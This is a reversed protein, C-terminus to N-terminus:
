PSPECTTHGGLFDVHAHQLNVIEVKTSLQARNDLSSHKRLFTLNCQPKEIAVQSSIKNKKIIKKWCADGEKIISCDVKLSKFFVLSVVQSNKTLIFPMGENRTASFIKSGNGKSFIQFLREGGFSDAGTVFIYDGVVGWFYSAGFQKLRLSKGRYKTGCLAVNPRKQSPYRITIKNAGLEGIDYEVIAFDGYDWCTSTIKEGYSMTGMSKAKTLVKVHKAKPHDFGERGQQLGAAGAYVSFSVVVMVM